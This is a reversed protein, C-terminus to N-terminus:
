RRYADSANREADLNFCRVVLDPEPQAGVVEDEKVGVAEDLPTVGGAILEALGTQDLQEGREM